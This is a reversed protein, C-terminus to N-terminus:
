KIEKRIRNEYHTNKILSKIIEKRSVKYKIPVKYFKLKYYTYGNAYPIYNKNLFKM